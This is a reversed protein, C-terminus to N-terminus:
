NNVGCWQQRSTQRRGGRGKKEAPVALEHQIMGGGGMSTTDFVSPPVALMPLIICNVIRDSQVIGFFMM